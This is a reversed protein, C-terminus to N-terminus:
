LILHEVGADKLLGIAREIEEETTPSYHPIYSSLQQRISM